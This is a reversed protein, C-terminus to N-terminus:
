LGFTWRGAIPEKTSESCHPLAAATKADEVCRSKTASTPFHAELDNSKNKRTSHGLRKKVAGGDILMVLISTTYLTSREAPPM